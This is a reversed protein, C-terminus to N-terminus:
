YQLVTQRFYGNKDNIHDALYLSADSIKQHKLMIGQFVLIYQIYVTYVRKTECKLFLSSEIQFLRKALYVGEQKPGGWICRDTQVTSNIGVSAVHRWHTDTYRCRVIMWRCTWKRKWSGCWNYMHPNICAKRLNRYFSKGAFQIRCSIDTKKLSKYGCFMLHSLIRHWSLFHM